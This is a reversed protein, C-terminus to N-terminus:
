QQGFRKRYEDSVIFSRVMEADIFNGYKNLKDLWFQYGAADPDRRLYGFYQMLVFAPNFEREYFTRGYPTSFDITGQPQNITGDCMKRLVSARTETGDDLGKGLALREDNSITSGSKQTMRDVYGQNTLVGYVDLFMPRNVFAKAFETKNAELNQASLANDVVIGSAVRRQDQLMEAFTPQRGLAGRYLRYIFYGTSQFETSLFYAGSTNVRKRDVCAKDGACSTVEGTWFALGPGDPERRLFDLYHQRVFFTPDDVPNSQNANTDNDVIRGRAQATGGLVMGTPNSLTLYFDEEGEVYSDDITSINISKTAEGPAFKLTEILPMYDCKAVAHHSVVTCDQTTSLDGSSVDVTAVTSLDGTRTVAINASVSGENIIFEPDSFQVVVSLPPQYIAASFSATLDGTLLSNSNLTISQPLFSYGPKSPTVTMISNKGYLASYRGNQDTQTITPQVPTQDGVITITVGAIGAENADKVVGSISAGSSVQKIQTLYVGEETGAYAISGSGDIALSTINKQLPPTLVSTTGGHDSQYIAPGSAVLIRGPVTPHMVLAAVTKGLETFVPNWSAGGDGSTYVSKDSLLAYITQPSSPDIMLYSTPTGVVIPRFSWSAGGDISKSVGSSTGAYITQPNSPDILLYNALGPSNLDTWTKGGDTSKRFRSFDYILYLTNSNTPDIAFAGLPTSYQIFLNDWHAGGDTSKNLGAFDIIAYINTPSQPDIWLDRIPNGPLNGTYTLGTSNWTNGYDVSKYIGDTTGAYLISSNKPDVKLATIQGFPLRDGAQTWGLGDDISQYIGAGLTAAYVTGRKSPYAIVTGISTNALGINKWTAGADRSQFVGHMFTGAYLTNSDGKLVAMSLVQDSPLGTNSLAWSDGRNTSKYVGSQTSIYLTTPNNQDIVVRLIDTGPLGSPNLEWSQGGNMSRRFNNSGVAYIIQPDLPDGAMSPILYSPLGPGVIDWHLGEDISKLLGHGALSAYIAPKPGITILLAIVDVEGNSYPSNVFLNGSWTVGGDVSKFVGGRYTGAYVINSDSPDVALSYVYKDALGIKAWNIGANVSKYVGRNPQSVTGGGQIGAYIIAPNTPAIVFASVVGVRPGTRSWANSSQSFISPGLLILLCLFSSITACYTQPFPHKFQLM